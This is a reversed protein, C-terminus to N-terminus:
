DIGIEDFHIYRSKKGIRTKYGLEDCLMYYDTIKLKVGFHENIGKMTIGFSSNNHRKILRCVEKLEQRFEETNLVLTRKQITIM